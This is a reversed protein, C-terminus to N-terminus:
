HLILFVFCFCFGSVMAGPDKEFKELKGTAGRTKGLNSCTITGM